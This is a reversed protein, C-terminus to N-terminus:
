ASLEVNDLVTDDPLEPTPLLMTETAGEPRSEAWRKGRKSSSGLAASQRAFADALAQCNDSLPANLRIGSETTTNCDPLSLKQLQNEEAATWRGAPKPGNM